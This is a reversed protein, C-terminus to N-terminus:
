RPMLFGLTEERELQSGQQKVKVIVDHSGPALEAPDAQLTVIYDRSSNAPVELLPSHIAVIGKQQSGLEYRQDTHSSNILRLQYVNEIYGENNERAMIARDRLFDARFPKHLALGVTCALIIASILAIYVAARPRQWWAPTPGANEEYPAFRILGRAEGIKDMVEDCADICATCGICQYQLGDRIDIGTPCVQVCLGCDVCSGKSKVASAGVPNAALSQRQLKGRPEGRQADYAVVKTHADFMAGQFRAYPCMHLCVQERLHGALLWTFGAYGLAFGAEWFGIRGVALESALERMPTFYAVLTIGTWLSFLLMVAQSSGKRLIKGASWGQRDRAQRQKAPGEIAREIWLMIQTYVTQPCSFGCWLRGGIMTWLFLGLACIILVAALYIFDQPLLILDFFYLRMTDFDFRMAQRGNWNLWPAAFYILQTLLVFAVRWNNYRGTTLKPYLKEAPAIVFIAAM